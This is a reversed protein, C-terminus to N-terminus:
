RHPPEIIPTVQRVLIKYAIKVIPNATSVKNKITVIFDSLPKEPLAHFTDRLAKIPNAYKELFAAPDIQQIFARYRSNKELKKLLKRIKLLIRIRAIKSSGAKPLDEIIKLLTKREEGDIELDQLIQEFIINYDENKLAISVEELFTPALLMPDNIILSLHSLIRKKFDDILINPMTTTSIPIKPLTKSTGTIRKFLGFDAKKESKGFILKFFLSETKRATNQNPANSTNQSFSGKEISPPLGVPISPFSEILTDSM